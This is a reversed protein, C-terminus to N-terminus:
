QDPFANCRRATHGEQGCRGCRAGSTGAQSEDMDNRIRRSQRRGKGGKLMNIDPVWTRASIDLTTFNGVARFGRLEGCWAQLIREKFFYESMFNSPDM